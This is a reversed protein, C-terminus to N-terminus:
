LVRLLIILLLLQVFCFWCIVYISKLVYVNAFRLMVMLNERARMTESENDREREREREKERKGCCQLQLNRKILREVGRHWQWNCIVFQM